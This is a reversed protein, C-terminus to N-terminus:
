TSASPLIKELDLPLEVAARFAQRTLWKIRKADLRMIADSSPNVTLLEGNGDLMHWESICAALWERVEDAHQFVTAGILTSSMLIDMPKGVMPEVFVVYETENYDTRAM